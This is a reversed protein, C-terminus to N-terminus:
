RAWCRTSSRGRSCPASSCAARPPPLCPAALGTPLGGHEASARCSNSAVGAAPCCPTRLGTGGCAEMQSLLASAPGTSSPRSTCCWSTRRRPRGRWRRRPGACVPLPPQLQAASRACASGALRASRPGCQVPWVAAERRCGASHDLLLRAFAGGLWFPLWSHGAGQGDRACVRPQRRGGRRWQQQASGGAAACGAGQQQQGAAGRVASSGGGAAAAAARLAAAATRAQRTGATTRAQRTGATRSTQQQDPPWLPPSSPVPLPPTAPCWGRAAAGGHSALPMCAHCPM